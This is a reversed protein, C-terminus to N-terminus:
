GRLVLGENPRLELPAISTEGARDLATSVLVEATDGRAGLDVTGPRSAFNLAVVVRETGDHRSFAFVDPSGGDLARYAGGTLAPHDARARTLAQFLRLMSAPDDREVAVNRRQWGEALPLWTEVGAPSFGANPSPDWAMPAREPDRSEGAVAPDLGVRDRVRAPDIPGHLMGLEDGYYWFPTGRLTLVLMMAVRAQDLGIREAIRPRDHNGVLWNPWAGDPIAADYRTVADRVAKAEWPLGNVLNFNFPLQCEDLEAGYYRMLNPIPDLEGIMVTDGYADAVRRFSRIIDHVAPQDETGAHLNTFWLPDGPKFSPNPPEDQFTPDKALLAIVDIRFGDVGRELWFRLNGLMAELVAPNGYNLEPQESRFQHFYYQGTTPDLTWAPGFYSMWNNPPGGDPAPDRWIYWDRKPNHRSSRSEVFWPHQDSTHNPVFDLILKLGRRHVEAALRDFDALTGLLPHVDRYDAVDYGADALPSPHIPSLWIGAVGLDVLYDLRSPIGQLDGVGDGNGDMFTFPFIQYIIGRRWWEGIGPASADPV